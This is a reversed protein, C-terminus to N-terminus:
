MNASKEPSAVAVKGGIKFGALHQQLGKSAAAIGSTAARSLKEGAGALINKAKSIGMKASPIISQGFGEWIAAEEAETLKKASAPVKLGANTLFEARDKSKLFKGAEAPVVGVPNQIKDIPAAIDKIGENYVIISNKIYPMVIEFFANDQEETNTKNDVANLYVELDSVIEEGEYFCVDYFANILALELISKDMKSIIQTLM